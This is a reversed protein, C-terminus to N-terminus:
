QLCYDLWSFRNLMIISAKKPLPSAFRTLDLTVSIHEPEAHHNAVCSASSSSQPHAPHRKQCRLHSHHTFIGLTDLIPDPSPIRSPPPLQQSNPIHAIKYSTVRTHILSEAPELWAPDATEHSTLRKLLGTELTRLAM